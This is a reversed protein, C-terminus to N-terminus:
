AAEFDFYKSFSSAKPGRKKAGPNPPTPTYGHCLTHHAACYPSAQQVPNGCFTFPGDGSPYHCVAETLQLVSLELSVVEVCRLPAAPEPEVKPARPRSAVLRSATTPQMRPARPKSALGRAGGFSRTSSLGIRHGRGIAANRSLSVSHRHSIEAAADSYSGGAAMIRRLDADMAETWDPM